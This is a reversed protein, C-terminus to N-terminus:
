GERGHSWTHRHRLRLVTAYVLANSSLHGSQSIKRRLDLGSKNFSLDFCLAFVKEFTFDLDFHLRFFKFFAAQECCFHSMKEQGPGINQLTQCEPDLGFDDFLEITRM